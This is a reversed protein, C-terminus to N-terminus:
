AKSEQVAVLKGGCEIGFRSKLPEGVTGHRLAALSWVFCRHHRSEEGATVKKRGEGVKTTEVGKWPSFGSGARMRVIAAKKRQAAMESANAVQMSISRYWRRKENNKKGKKM